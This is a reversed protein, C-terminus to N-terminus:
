TNDKKYGCYDCLVIKECLELPQLLVMPLARLSWSSPCEGLGVLGIM